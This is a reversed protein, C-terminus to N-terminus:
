LTEDMLGKRYGRQQEVRFLRGLLPISALGAIGTKNVADNTQPLGAIVAWEDQGLRVKGQFKRQAIAPIGDAGTAGLTTFAADIDLTMEGGDHVTPTIKMVLGLDQFTITPTPTTLTGGM